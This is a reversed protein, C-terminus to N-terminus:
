IKDGNRKFKINIPILRRTNEPRINGTCIVFVNLTQKHNEDTYVQISYQIKYINESIREFVATTCHCSTNIKDISFSKTSELTMTGTVITPNDAPFEGRDILFGNPTVEVSELNDTIKIGFERNSNIGKKYHYEGWKGIPCSSGGVKIKKKLPCTCEACTDSNPAVLNNRLAVTASIEAGNKTNRDCENCIKQRDLQWQESIDDSTTYAEVINTVKKIM